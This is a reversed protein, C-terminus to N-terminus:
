CCRRCRNGNVKAATTAIGPRAKGSSMWEPGTVRVRVTLYGRVRLQSIGVQRSELLSVKRQRGCGSWEGKKDGTKSLIRPGGRWGGFLIM